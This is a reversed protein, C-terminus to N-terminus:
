QPPGSRNEDNIRKRGQWPESQEHAGYRSNLAYQQARIVDSENPQKYHLLWEGTSTQTIASGVKCNKLEDKWPSCPRSTRGSRPPRSPPM